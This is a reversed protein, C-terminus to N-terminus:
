RCIHRSLQRAAIGTKGEADFPPPSTALFKLIRYGGVFWQAETVLLLHNTDTDESAERITTDTVKTTDRERGTTRTEDAAAAAATGNASATEKVIEIVFRNPVM